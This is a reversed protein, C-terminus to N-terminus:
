EQPNQAPFRRALRQGVEIVHVEMHHVAAFGIAPDPISRIEFTGVVPGAVCRLRDNAKVGDTYDFFAVGERDQARGAVVPMPTDKGVRIFALDLRCMLEGPTGIAADAVDDIKYWTLDPTGKVMEGSLRLVEVRSNFLHRM